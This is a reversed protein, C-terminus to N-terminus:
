SRVGLVAGLHAGSRGLTAIQGAVGQRAQAPLMTRQAASVGTLVNWPRSEGHGLRGPQMALNWFARELRRAVPTPDRKTLMEVFHRELRRLLAQGATPALELLVEDPVDVGGMARALRLTWYCCTSARTRLALQVVEAWDISGIRDLTAIDRFAHWAGVRMGHSWAFHIAIHLVHQNPELVFTQIGALAAPRRDRWVDHPTVRFPHGPPFLDRHIELRLGRGLSDILPPLHHHTRYGDDGPLSHSSMWGADLLVARAEEARGLDVLIDIDNMPRHAFSGYATAALAAGKLLVVEIGASALAALSARARDHLSRSRLDSELGLCALRRQVDMPIVDPSLGRCRNRLAGVAGEDWAIQLLRSWDMDPAPQQLQAVGMDDAALAFIFHGERGTAGREIRSMADAFM